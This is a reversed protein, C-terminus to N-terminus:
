ISVQTFYPFPAPAEFTANCAFAKLQKIKKFFLINLVKGANLLKIGQTAARYASCSGGGREVRIVTALFIVGFM